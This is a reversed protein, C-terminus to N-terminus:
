RYAYSACPFEKEKFCLLECEYINPVSIFKKVIGKTLRFGAASRLSCEAFSDNQFIMYKVVVQNINTDSVTRSFIMIIPIGQSQRFYPMVTFIMRIQNVLFHYIVVRMLLRDKPVNRYIAEVEVPLHLSSPPNQYIVEVVPRAPPSIQHTVEVVPLGPHCNRYIVEVVLRLNQLHDQYIVAVEAVVPHDPPSMQYTVEVVAAVVLHDLPSIQYIVEEVQHNIQLSNEIITSNKNM